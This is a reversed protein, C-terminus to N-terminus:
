RAPTTATKEAERKLFAEFEHRDIQGDRNTDIEDFRRAYPTSQLEERSLRGDANRDLADFDPGAPGQGLGGAPGKQNAVIRAAMRRLEDRDLYGDKNLDLQAFNEALRGRAEAKSIKGDKNTDFQALLGNVVKEIAPGTPAKAAVGFRQRLRGLLQDIEGRDLKGDSNTDAKDFTKALFPPVEDRTLFGDKNKDFRKIFEEPSSKILELFAPPVPKKPPQAPTQGNGTSAWALAGIGLLMALRNMSFEEWAGRATTIL